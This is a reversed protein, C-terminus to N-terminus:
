NIYPFLLQEQCFLFATNEIIVPDFSGNPKILSQKLRGISWYREIVPPLTCFRLGRAIDKAQKFIVVLDSLM